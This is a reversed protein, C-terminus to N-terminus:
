KEAASKFPYHAPLFEAKFGNFAVDKASGGGDNMCFFRLTLYSKRQDFTRFNTHRVIMSNESSVTCAGRSLAYHHYLFSAFSIDKSTRFRNRRTTYAQESFDELMQKFLNRNFAYPAHRHMQVPMVGTKQLMLQAGNLAAHQWEEGEGSRQLQEIYPIVGYPELRAVTQGYSTFFDSPSVFGSLFFDDNFYLFDESLDPLEHIYTEIVHSNFTPLVEAPMIDQHMVWRFRESPKFWGPPACNSFVYINRVWPAFLAISRISYKLEDNHSFRDHDIAEVPKYPRISERWAPDDSNVWTFVVDIQSSRFPTTVAKPLTWNESLRVRKVPAQEGPAVAFGQQEKWPTISYRGAIANQADVITLEIRGHRSPKVVASKFRVSDFKVWGEKDSYVFISQGSSAALKSLSSILFPVSFASLDVDSKLGSFSRTIGLDAVDLVEGFTKPPKGEATDEFLKSWKNAQAVPLLLHTVPFRKNLENRLIVACKEVIQSLWAKIM